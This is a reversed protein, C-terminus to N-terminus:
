RREKASVSRRKKERQPPYRGKGFSVGDRRKKGAKGKRRSKAGGLHSRDRKKKWFPWLVVRKESGASLIRKETLNAKKEQRLATRAACDTARDSKELRHLFDPKERKERGERGASRIQNEWTMPGKRPRPIKGNKGNKKQSSSLCNKQRDVLGGAVKVKKRHAGETASKKEQLPTLNKGCRSPGKLELHQRRM